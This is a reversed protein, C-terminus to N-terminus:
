PTEKPHAWPPSNHKRSFRFMSLPVRQGKTYVVDAHTRTQIQFDVQLGTIRSLRESIAAMMLSWFPNFRHGSYAGFVANFKEDPMIVRVDVDRFERGRTASGVLYCEENFAESVIILAHDLNSMEAPSLWCDRPTNNPDETVERDDQGDGPGGPGADRRVM